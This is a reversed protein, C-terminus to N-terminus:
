DYGSSFLETFYEGSEDSSELDEHIAQLKAKRRVPPVKPLGKQAVASPKEIVVIDSGDSGEDSDGGTGGDDDEDENGTFVGEPDGEAEETESVQLEKLLALAAATASRKPRSKRNDDDELNASTDKKGSGLTSSVLSRTSRRTSGSRVDSPERPPPPATGTKKSNSSTSQTTIDFSAPNTSPGSAQPTDELQAAKALELKAKKAARAEAARKKKAGEGM